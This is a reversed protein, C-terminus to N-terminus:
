SLADQPGLHLGTTVAHSLLTGLMWEIIMGSSQPGAVHVRVGEKRAGLLNRSAWHIGVEEELKGGGLSLLIEM